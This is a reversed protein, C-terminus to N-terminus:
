RVIIHVAVFGGDDMATYRVTVRAKNRLKGEVTTRDDRAFERTVPPQGAGKRVVTLSRDSLQTVTGSFILESPVVAKPAATDSEQASLRGPISLSLALFLAIRSNRTV